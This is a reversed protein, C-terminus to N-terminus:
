NPISQPKLYAQPGTLPTVTEKLSESISFYKLYSFKCVVDAQRLVASTCPKDDNTIRIMKQLKATCIFKRGLWSVGAQRCAPIDSGGTSRCAPGNHTLM